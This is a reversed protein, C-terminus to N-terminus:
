PHTESILNSKGRCDIYLYAYESSTPSSESSSSAWDRVLPFCSPWPSSLKTRCSFFPPVSTDKSWSSSDSSSSLLSHASLLKKNVASASNKCSHEAVRWSFHQLIKNMQVLITLIRKITYPIVTYCTNDM